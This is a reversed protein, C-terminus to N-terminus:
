TIHRVKGSHPWRRADASYNWHPDHVGDPRLGMGANVEARTAVFIGCRMCHQRPWYIGFMYAEGWKHLGLLCLM